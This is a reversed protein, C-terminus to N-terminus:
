RGFEHAVLELAAMITQDMDYYRYLGLRGGFLVDPCTKRALNLYRAYLQKNVSDNIPYYPEDGRQWTKPYERTIVTKHKNGAGFEFHKHEIIRTYPTEADTYNVVANGQYNDVDKIETEFRLSRYSLEGLEYDFFQDIMGTFVVRPYDKLYNARDAFFDTETRVDILKNDLLQEIIQTYGGIPIGQYPDNFYNNDYTFRVPIRRIIFAPLETAKAGWQKETYGKILKKYVDTGVLSKAQEELNKPPKMLNLEARQEEIKAQAQAPTIVGWLKNFTNMNFPLNYIEGHYNAIPSNIYNNFQAFQNVYDWIKKSRTHFIHAGYMHVQIGEIPKTYINGGIHDRKEIVTVHNGRKAAENAFVAGFLGSGVVLYEMM